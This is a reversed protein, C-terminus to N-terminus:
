AKKIRGGFILLVAIVIVILLVIGILFYPYNFVTPINLYATNEKLVVSDPLQQILEVLFVSDRTTFYRLTDKGKMQFIPLSLYQISDIEFTSLYYVVSDLSETSDTKTTYYEKGEFEFPSFNFLSDPFIISLDRSYRATM